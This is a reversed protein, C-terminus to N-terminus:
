ARRMEFRFTRDTAPNLDHGVTFSRRDASVLWLQAKSASETIPVWRPLAGPGCNECPVVTRSVGNALTFTNSAIANTAGRALDGIARAFLSLDKENQGPVNM